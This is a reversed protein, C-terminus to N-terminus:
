NETAARETIEYEFKTNESGAVVFLSSTDIALPIAGPEGAYLRNPYSGTSYGIDVYSGAGEAHNMVYCLGADGISSSLVIEVESTGLTITAGQRSGGVTLLDAGGLTELTDERTMQVQWLM